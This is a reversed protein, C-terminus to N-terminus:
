IQNLQTASKILQQAQEYWKEDLVFDNRLMEGSISNIFELMEPAKSILLADYFGEDHGQNVEQAIYTRGFSWGSEVLVVAHGEDERILRWVGQTGKFEM